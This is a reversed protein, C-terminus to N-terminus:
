NELSILHYACKTHLFTQCARPLDRTPPENLRHCMYDLHCLPLGMVNTFCGQLSEVPNFRPHQIAYAGAKDMPDGTAVYAMIEAQTYSRMFVKTICWDTSLLDSGARLFALGTYVLHSKGRLTELMTVAEKQNTPKGLVQKDFVVATDAALILSGIHIHQAVASAKERALRLVYDLPKEGSHLDENVEVPVAQFDWGAMTLLQKRRPSNSALVLM